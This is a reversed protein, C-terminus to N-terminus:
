LVFYYQGSVEEKIEFAVTQRVTHPKRTSQRKLRARTYGSRTGFYTGAVKKYLARKEEDWIALENLSYRLAERFEMREKKEAVRTVFSLVLEDSLSVGDREEVKRRATRLEELNVSSM